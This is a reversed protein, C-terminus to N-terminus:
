EGFQKLYDALPEMGAAARRVDVHERDEIPDLALKGGAGYHLQSGYLQQRGDQVRVRDISLALLHPAFEFEDAAAQMLPVCRKLFEPSAHQAIAWAAGVADDGVASMRPWGAADIIAGLRQERKLDDENMRKVFVPDELKDPGLDQRISQDQRGMEILEAALAPQPLTAPYILFDLAGFQKPTWVYKTPAQWGPAKLRLRIRGVDPVDIRYRDGDVKGVVDPLKDPSEAVVEIAPPLTGTPSHITGSLTVALGPATALILPVAAFALCPLRIM